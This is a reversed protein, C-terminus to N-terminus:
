GKDRATIKAEGLGNMSPLVMGLKKNEVGEQSMAQQQVM